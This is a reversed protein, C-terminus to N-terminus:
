AHEIQPKAPIPYPGPDSEDAYTFSVKVKKQTAPVLNYPIGIPGGNWTGSGFDPHLGIGTGITAIIADSNAAVPLSDVRMNWPNDAPFMACGALQPAQASGGLLAAAAVSGALLKLM